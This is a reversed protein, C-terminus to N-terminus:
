LLLKVAYGHVLLRINQFLHQWTPHLDGGTCYAGFGGCSAHLLWLKIGLRARPSSGTVRVASITRIDARPHLSVGPHICTTSRSFQCEKGAILRTPRAAYTYVHGGGDLPISFPHTSSLIGRRLAWFPLPLSTFPHYCLSQRCVGGADQPRSQHSQVSSKDLGHLRAAPPRYVRM